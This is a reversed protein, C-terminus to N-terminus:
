LRFLEMHCRPVFSPNETKWRGKMEGSEGLEMNYFVVIFM